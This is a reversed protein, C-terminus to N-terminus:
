KSAGASVRATILSPPPLAKSSIPTTTSAVRDECSIDSILRMLLPFGAVFRDVMAEDPSTATVAQLYAKIKSRSVTTHRLRRLM